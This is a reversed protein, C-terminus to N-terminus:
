ARFLLLLTPILTKQPVKAVAVDYQLMAAALFLTKQQTRGSAVDRLGFSYGM